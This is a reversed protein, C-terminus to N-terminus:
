PLDSVTQDKPMVAYAYVGHDVDDSLTRVSGDCMAIVVIGVHNSSPRAAAYRIVKNTAYRETIGKVVNLRTPGFAPNEVDLGQLFSDRLQTISMNTNANRSITFGIAWEEGSIARGNNFMMWADADENESLLITKTTGDASSIFDLNITTDCVFLNSGNKYGGLRDFFLGMNKGVTGNDRNGAGSTALEYYLNATTDVMAPVTDADTFLNQTGCNVVYSNMASGSSFDKTSSPCKLVRLVPIPFVIADQKGTFGNYLATQELYPLISVIWNSQWDSAFSAKEADNAFKSFNHILNKRFSPLENKATEYNLIALALNKQNNQCQLRAAAQRASQVAPLLLGMLMGIISIVVLLEILTFGTKHNTKM